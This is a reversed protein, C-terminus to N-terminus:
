IFVPAFVVSKQWADQLKSEDGCPNGLGRQRQGVLVHAEDEAGEGGPRHFGGVQLSRVGPFGTRSAHPQPLVQLAPISFSGM